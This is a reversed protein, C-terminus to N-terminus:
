IIWRLGILEPRKNNARRRIDFLTWNNSTGSLASYHLSKNEGEESESMTKNSIDLPTTAGLFVFAATLGSSLTREAYSYGIQHLSELNFTSKNIYYIIDLPTQPGFFVSATVPYSYSLHHLTGLTFFVMIVSLILFILKYGPIGM